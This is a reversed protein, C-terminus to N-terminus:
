GTPRENAQAAAMVLVVKGIQANVDLMEHAARVDGMPVAAHIRTVFRGAALLPWVERVLATAIRGKYEPPRPRLTSGTLTLRRRVLDRTNVESVSSQHSALLVLRGDCALLDLQKQINSGAQADLAVNICHEGALDRIEAAWDTRYNFVADAGIAKCIELKEASGATAFIRRRKPPLAASVDPVGTSASTSIM